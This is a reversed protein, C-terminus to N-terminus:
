FRGGQLLRLQPQPRLLGATAGSSIADEPQMFRSSGIRLHALPVLTAWYPHSLAALSGVLRADTRGHHRLPLLLLELGLMRRDATEGIIGAIVPTATRVMSDILSYIETREDPAFADIFVTDRLERGLLTCIHTGALRVRYPAPEDADLMFVDGLIKGIAGPKLDGREPAAREGRIQNWYAYLARSTAHKM